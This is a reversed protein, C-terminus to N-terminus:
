IQYRERKQNERQSLSYANKDKPVKVSPTHLVFYEVRHEFKEQGILRFNMLDHVQDKTLPKNNFLHKLGQNTSGTNSICSSKPRETQACINMEMKKSAGSSGLSTVINNLATARVPIFM